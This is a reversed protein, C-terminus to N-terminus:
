SRILGADFQLIVAADLANIQGDGNADANESCALAPTKGAVYQLILLADIANTAGDCNADYRVTVIYVRATEGTTLSEIDVWGAGKSHNAIITLSASRGCAVGPSCQVDAGLAVGGQKDVTVWPKAPKARWALLGTGLNSITIRTSGLGVSSRSVSLDPGGLLFSALESAPVSTSDEHTPQPSPIDMAACNLDRSCPRWNDLDLPDGWREDNLDPLSAPLATWLRSGSVSPPRAMCGFVIEQYPYNGYSHGYGDNAPGCSFGTRPWAAYDPDAPHNSRNAGPGTFGNYGWVAFYWNEVIRPNSNTDTGAVPRYQPAANWKDALIVAGRAINYLYHTAVLAQQKSPLGGDAASTMGSTIQMIGHGCDFSVLAPGTAGWAVSRAAQTMGSEIWGIAKLLTPPIYPDSAISRNNRTGEEVTATGFFSDNPFLRNRAALELGMLYAQRSSAEYTDPTVSFACGRAQPPTAVAFATWVALTFAGVILLRSM